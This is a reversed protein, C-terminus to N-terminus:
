SIQFQPNLFREAALKKIEAATMAHEHRRHYGLVSKEYKEIDTSFERL